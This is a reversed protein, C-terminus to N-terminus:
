TSIFMSVSWAVSASSVPANRKLSATSRWRTTAISSATVSGDGIARPSSSSASRRRSRSSSPSSAPARQLLGGHRTEDAALFEAAEGGIAHLRDVVLVQGRELAVNGLGALDHGAADGAGLAIELALKRHRDLARAEERQQRVGVLVST